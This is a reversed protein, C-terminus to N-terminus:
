TEDFVWTFSESPTTGPGATTGVGLQYVFFDGLDGTSPNSMSGTIAKTAASTHTFVDVPAGALNAHNGTTLQLGTTGQTGSAQVYASATNGLCTIGTGFSNAGDTYWRLNNITGAPTVDVSLRTSVWYSYNTGALPVPIPDNTGPSPADSTSARTSGATIDTKTPAGSSGTWRRITVTAPM